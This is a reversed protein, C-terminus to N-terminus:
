AKRYDFPTEGTQAKFFRIFASPSSFHLEESIESIAKTTGKLLKKASYVMIRNLWQLAPEGTEDRVVTSLYKPTINMIEAYYAVDHREKYHKLIEAFFQRTLADQHSPAKYAPKTISVARLVIMSLTEVLLMVLYGNDETDNYYRQLLKIIIRVEEADREELFCTECAENKQLMRYMMNIDINRLFKGKLYDDGFHKSINITVDKPLYVLSIEDDDSYSEITVMQEPTAMFIANRRMDVIRNNIRIKSTGNNCLGFLWGHTIITDDKNSCKAMFAQLSTVIIGEKNDTMDNQKAIATGISFIYLIM